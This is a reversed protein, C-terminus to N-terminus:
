RLSNRSGWQKLCMSFARAVGKHSVVRPTSKAERGGKRLVREELSGQEQKGACGRWGAQVGPDGGCATRSQRHGEQSHIAPWLECSDPGRLRLWGEARWWRGLVSCGVFEWPVKNKRYFVCHLHPAKGEFLIVKHTYLTRLYQCKQCFSCYM